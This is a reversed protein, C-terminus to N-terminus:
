KEWPINGQTCLPKTGQIGYSSAKVAGHNLTKVTTAIGVFSDVLAKGGPTSSSGIESLTGQPTLKVSFKSEEFFASDYQVLYENDPDPILKTETVMIPFCAKGDDAGVYHTLVGKADLIRDRLFTQDDKILPRYLIGEYKGSCTDDKMVCANQPNKYTYLNGSCASLLSMMVVLAYLKIMNERRSERSLFMLFGM